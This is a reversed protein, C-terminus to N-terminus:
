AVEVVFGEQVEAEVVLGALHGLRQLLYAEVVVEGEWFSIM